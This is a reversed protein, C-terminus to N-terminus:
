ETRPNVRVSLVVDKPGDGMSKDYLFYNNKGSSKAQYMAIDALRVLESYETAQSPFLAGGISLGVDFDRIYRQFEPKAAFDELMTRARREAQEPTVIDPIVQVFEDGGIRASINEVIGKCGDADSYNQFFRSILRLLVDGEDHGASDNVRKFNDLDIFLVAFSADNNRHLRSWRSLYTFLYYRNYLGTIADHNAIYLLDEQMKQNRRLLMILLGLLIAMTVVMVVILLLANTLATQRSRENYADEVDVSVIGIPTDEDSGDGNLYLPIAGTNYSGWEDEVNMIDASPRGAFADEHVAAIEYETFIPNDPTGAEEDTDFIFYYKGDIEKLVYIYTAGVENKLVRLREITAVVESQRAHLDADSNISLFLDVPIDDRAAFCVALLESKVSEELIGGLTSNNRITLALTTGLVLALLASVIFLTSQRLRGAQLEPTHGARGTDTGAV